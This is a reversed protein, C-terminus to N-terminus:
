SEYVEGYIRKLLNELNQMIQRYEKEGTFVKGDKYIFQDMIVIRLEHLAQALDIQPKLEQKLTQIKLNLVSMELASLELNETYEVLDEVAKNM